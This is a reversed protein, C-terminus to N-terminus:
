CHSQLDYIMTTLTPLPVGTACCVPWPAASTKIEHGAPKRRWITLDHSTDSWNPLSIAEQLDWHLLLTSSFAPTGTDGHWEGIVAVCDGSYAELAEEAM